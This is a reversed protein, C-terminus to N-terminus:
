FGSDNRLYIKLIWEYGFYGPKTVVTLKSENPKIQQFLLKSVKLTERPKIERWSNVVAYYRYSSKNRSYYKDIVFVNYSSPKHQDLKGNFYGFYGFVSIPVAFVAMFFVVILERHSSSRGKLLQIAIWMFIILVPFAYKLSNFFMKGMDIPAFSIFTFITAASGTLLMLFLLAFTIYKKLKWPQPKEREFETPSINEINKNLEDLFGVAKEVVETKMQGGRPFNKWMITLAKGNHKLHNFELDFLKKILDRNEPKELIHKTFSIKTTNIYFTNDFEPDHTIIEVCIGLKKFFRDIKTERTITFNALVQSPITISFYPPAKDTGRFHKYSYNIGNYTASGADGKAIKGTDSEKMQQKKKARVIKFITWALVAGILIFILVFIIVIAAEKTM